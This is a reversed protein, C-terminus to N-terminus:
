HLESRPRQACLKPAIILISTWLFVV